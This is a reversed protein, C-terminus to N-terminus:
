LWSYQMEKLDDSVKFPAETAAKIDEVSVGPAVEVLTMGDAGHKDIDFVALETIIRDVCRPSTLPLTCERKIKSTGGGGAAGHKSPTIHEMTVVVRCGSSVLDMAGGPGKVMKKPIVWNALDGRPNVQLGGLITMDLHSGRIMAFADASDFCSTSPLATITEKGANVYDTDAEAETSPYPGMGLIGNESMLMVGLKPDLFEALMTPMGIGLNVANGQQPELAARRAVRERVPM